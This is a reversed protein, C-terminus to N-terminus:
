IYKRLPEERGGKGAQRRIVWRMKIGRVCVCMSCICAASVNTDKQQKALETQTKKGSVPRLQPKEMTPWLGSLNILKGSARLSDRRRGRGAGKAYYFQLKVM